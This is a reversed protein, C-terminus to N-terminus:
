DGSHHGEYHHGDEVGQKGTMALPVLLLLVAGLENEHLQRGIWLAIVGLHAPALFEVLLTFPPYRNHFTDKYHIILGIGLPHLVHEVLQADAAEGEELLDLAAAAPVSLGAATGMGPRLHVGRHHRDYLIVADLFQKLGYALQVVAVALYAHPGKDPIYLLRHSKKFVIKSKIYRQAKM